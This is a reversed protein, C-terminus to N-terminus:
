NDLFSLGLSDLNFWGHISKFSVFTGCWLLQADVTNFDRHVRLHGFASQRLIFDLWKILKYLIPLFSSSTTSTCSNAEVAQPPQRRSRRLIALAQLTLVHDTVIMLLAQAVLEFRRLRGESVVCV